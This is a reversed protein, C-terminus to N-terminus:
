RGTLWGLPGLALVGGVVVAIFLVFFFVSMWDIKGKM